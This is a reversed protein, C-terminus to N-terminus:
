TLHPRFDCGCLARFTATTTKGTLVVHWPGWAYGRVGAFYGDQGSIRNVEPGWWAWERWKGRGGFLCHTCTPGVPAASETATTVTTRSEVVAERRM